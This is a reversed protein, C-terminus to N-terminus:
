LGISAWDLPAKAFASVHNHAVWLARKVHVKADSSIKALLTLNTLSANARQADRIAIVMELPTYNNADGGFAEQLALFLSKNKNIIHEFGGLDSLNDSSLILEYNGADGGVGGISVQKNGILVTQVQVIKRGLKNADYILDDVEVFNGDAVNVADDLLDPPFSFRNELTQM